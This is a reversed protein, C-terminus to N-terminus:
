KANKSILNFALAKPIIKRFAFNAENVMALKNNILVENPCDIDTVFTAVVGTHAPDLTVIVKVATLPLPEDFLYLADDVNM